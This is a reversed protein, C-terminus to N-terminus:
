FNDFIVSVLKNVQHTKLVKQFLRDLPFELECLAKMVEPDRTIIPDEEEEEEESSAVEICEKSSSNYFDELFDDVKRKRKFGLDPKFFPEFLRSRSTQEDSDSTLDICNSSHILDELIDKPLRSDVESNPQSM